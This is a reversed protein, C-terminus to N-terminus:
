RTAAPRATIEPRAGADRARRAVIPLALVQVLGITSVTVMLRGVRDERHARADPGDRAPKLPPPDDHRDVRPQAGVAQPSSRRPTVGIRLRLFSLLRRSAEAQGLTLAHGNTVISM